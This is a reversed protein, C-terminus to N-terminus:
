KHTNTVKQQSLAGHGLCRTSPPASKPKLNWLSLPANHHPPVPLLCVLSGACSAPTDHGWSCTLLLTSTFCLERSKLSVEQTTSGRGLSYRGRAERFLVILQPSLIWICSDIASIEQEFRRMRNCIFIMKSLHSQAWTGTITCSLMWRDACQWQNHM